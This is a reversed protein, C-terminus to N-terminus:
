DVQALLTACMSKEERGDTAIAQARAKIAEEEARKAVDWTRACVHQYKLTNISMPRCCKPCSMKVKLALRCPAM